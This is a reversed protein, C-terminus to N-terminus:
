KKQAARKARWEAVWEPTHEPCWSKPDPNDESYKQSFWGPHSKYHWQHDPRENPCGPEACRIWGYHPAEEPAAM